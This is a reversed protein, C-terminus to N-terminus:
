FFGFDDRVHRAYCAASTVQWQARRPIRISEMLGPRRCRGRRTGLFDKFYKTVPHNLWEQIEEATPAPLERTRTGQMM